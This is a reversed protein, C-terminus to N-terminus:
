DYGHNNNSHRYIFFTFSLCNKNTSSPIFFLLLPQIITTFTLPVLHTNIFSLSLSVFFLLSTPLNDIEGGWNRADQKEGGEKAIHDHRTGRGKTM